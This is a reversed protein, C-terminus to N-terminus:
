QVRSQVPHQECATPDPSPSSLGPEWEWLARTGCPLFCPFVRATRLVLVPHGTVRSLSLTLTPRRPLPKTASTQMALPWSNTRGPLCQSPWADGRSEPAGTPKCTVEWSLSNLAGGSLRTMCWSGTVAGTELPRRPRSLGGAGQMSASLSLAAPPRQSQFCKGLSSPWWDGREGGDCGHSHSCHQLRSSQPRSGLNM